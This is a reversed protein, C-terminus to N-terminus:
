APPWRREITKSHLIDVFSGPKKCRSAIRNSHLTFREAMQAGTLKASDFAFVRLGNGKLAERHDRLIAADKTLAVWGEEACRRIWIDDDVAFNGAEPYVEHAPKAIFNCSRVAESVDHRGLGQDLFFTLQEEPQKSQKRRSSVLRRKWM